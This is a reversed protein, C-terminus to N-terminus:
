VVKKLRTRETFRLTKLDLASLLYLAPITKKVFGNPLFQQDIKKLMDPINSDPYSDQLQRALDIVEKFSLHDKNLIPYHLSLLNETGSSPTLDDQKIVEYASILLGSLFILQEIETLEGRTDIFQFPQNNDVVVMGNKLLLGSDTLLYHAAFKKM